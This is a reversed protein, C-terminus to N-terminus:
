LGAVKLSQGTVNCTYTGYDGVDRTVDNGCEAGEYCIANKDVQSAWAFASLPTGDAATQPPVCGRM